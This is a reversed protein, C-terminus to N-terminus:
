MEVSVIRVATVMPGRRYCLLAGLTRAENDASSLSARDDVAIRVHHTVTNAPTPPRRRAVDVELDYVLSDM